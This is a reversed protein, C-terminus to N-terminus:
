AVVVVFAAVVVDDDNNDDNDDGVVVSFFILLLLLLISSSSNHYKIMGCCEIVCCIGRTYRVIATQCLLSYRQHGSPLRHAATHWHTNVQRATHGRYVYIYVVDNVVIIVVLVNIIHSLSMSSISLSSPLPLHVYSMHKSSFCYTYCMIASRSCIYIFTYPKNHFCWCKPM